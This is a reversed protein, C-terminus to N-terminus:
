RWSILDESQPWLPPATLRAPAPTPTAVEIKKTASTWFPTFVKFPTDSGTKVTWPEVLLSGNLTHVAVGDDALSAKMRTDRDIAFPEYLRNWYVAHANSEAIIQGLVTEAKGRRLVLKSGRKRLDAALSELSHHLWWRAAGGIRWPGPTEDDLIYVPVIPGAKAANTLAPNDALRLDQRFWVVSPRETRAM